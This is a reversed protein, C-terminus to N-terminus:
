RRRELVGVLVSPATLDCPPRSGDRIRRGTHAQVADILTANGAGDEGSVLVSRPSGGLAEKFWGRLAAQETFRRVV